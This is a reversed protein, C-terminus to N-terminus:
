KKEMKVIRGEYLGGAMAGEHTQFRITIKEKGKTLEEPIPYTVKFFEGPKDKSLKQTAIKKGDVMIDFVRNGTEGGWYTVTLGIPGEGLSMMDYSFWGGPYAHRYMKGHYRGTASGKGQYNHDREPQMDPTVVDVTKEELERKLRLREEYEEKIEQWQAETFLDWYVTFRQHHAEHFPILSVDEPRGVGVTKFKLTDGPVKKVWQDIPKDNTILVPVDPTPMSAYVMHYKSYPVKGSFGERGLQGALVIPGYMIAAKSPCNEMKELRLKMPLAVEVVDGDAWNRDITLFGRPQSEAEVKKGNVTVQMASDIWYPHRIRLKGTIPNDCSLVLRTKPENPFRTEQRVKIGKEKWNLESAIFLNVYLGEDDHFYISDGYKVHNELGSGTCCWFADYPSSYTHFHGPKLSCFYMLMGRKPDQTVLIHNYLAREYYDAYRGDATWSFLHRTLKLMNYTGCTESAVPSLHKHLEGRRQFCEANGSGGNVFSHHQTVTEWFFDAMKRLEEKGSLEYQRAAGVIKPIQTNAHIGELKDENRLLPAFVKKDNFRLSLDFYKKEKTLAFVNAMADNMGGYECKLMSQFQEDTLNESLKCAWDSLGILVTKAKENGCYKYVDVLGAYLKHMTYWPVWGGNLGFNATEIKGAAVDAFLKKGNPMGGVFGNGNAKQCLALEDVIYNARELYCKEGTAAYALACATLYHGLTHGSIGQSEWGGYIKGKPELGAYERFRSLLRDPELDMIYKEGRGMADKFPGDLLRVDDLNFAYAKIPVKPAVQYTSDRQEPASAVATAAILMVITLVASIKKM